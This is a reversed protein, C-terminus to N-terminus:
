DYKLNFYVRSYFEGPVLPASTRQPTIYLTLSNQEPSLVDYKGVAGPTLVQHQSDSIELAIGLAGVVKILQANEPEVPAIINWSFSVQQYGALTNGQWNDLSRTESALCDRLTIDVAVPTGRMGYRAFTRTSLTGLEVLQRASSLDLRCASQMLTGHVALLGVNGDIGQTDQPAAALAGSLALGSLALMISLYRM